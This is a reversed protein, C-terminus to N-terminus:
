QTEFFKNLLGNNKYDSILYTEQNAKSFMNKNKFDIYNNNEVDHFLAAVIYSDETEFTIPYCKYYYYKNYEEGINDTYSDIFRYTYKEISKRKEKENKIIDSAKIDVTNSIEYIINYTNQANADSKGFAFFCIITFLIIGIIFSLISIYKKKFLKKSKKIYCFLNDKEKLIKYSTKKRLSEIFLTLITGCYISIGFINFVIFIVLFHLILKIYSGDLVYKISIPINQNESICYFSIFLTFELIFFFIIKLIRSNNLLIFILFFNSIIFLSLIIIYQFIYLLSSNEIKIYIPDINFVSFKGLTYYYMLSNLSTKIISGIFGGLTFLSIFIAIIKSIFNIKKDDQDPKIKLILLELLKNSNKNEESDKNEESNLIEETSKM